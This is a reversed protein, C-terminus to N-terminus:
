QYVSYIFINRYGTEIEYNLSDVTFKLIVNSTSCFQKMKYLSVAKEVEVQIIFIYTWKCTKTKRDQKRFIFLTDHCDAKNTSSIPSFWLGTV